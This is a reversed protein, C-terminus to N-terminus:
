PLAFIEPTPFVDHTQPVHQRFAGPLKRFIDGDDVALSLDGIPFQVPGGAGQSVMQPGEAEPLPVLHGQHEGVAGLEDDGIEAIWFIPPTATVRM